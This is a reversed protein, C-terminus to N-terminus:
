DGVTRRDFFTALMQVKQGVRFKHTAMRIGRSSRAVSCLKYCQLSSTLLLIPVHFELQLSAHFTVM